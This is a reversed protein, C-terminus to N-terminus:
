KEVTSTKLRELLRWIVKDQGYEDEVFHMKQNEDEFVTFYTIFIPLPNKMKVSKTKTGLAEMKIRAYPWQELDNFAFTALKHPDQVRICGHSLCRKTNLFLSQQSTGHLYISYPNDATFRIKGLANTPGPSQIVRLQGSSNEIRYGKKAYAGPNKQIKPLLGKAISLPVYWSPNFIIGTMLANFVPTKTHENGIIIRMFFAPVGNNVAKLYFGPINVQIYRDPLSSPYWRQRELNVIISRIRDEVPTNLAALTAEGVKGDKKLAHLGQYIKLNEELFDDFLDSEQGESPAIDQMVLQMRLIRILPGRDGKQLKTGKPLQPWGGQEKKKRYSSLLNKLRKYEPTPPSLGYVWDPQNTLSLYKKLEETEDIPQHKIYIEKVTKHPDLRKGNLEAIYNLTTATLLEDAKKQTVESSLDATQLTEVIPAYNEQWLGEEDVHALISLLAHACPTWEGEKIWILRAQFYDYIKAVRQDQDVSSLAQTFFIIFNGLAALFCIKKVM